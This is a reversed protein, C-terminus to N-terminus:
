VKAAVKLYKDKFLKTFHFVLEVEYDRSDHYENDYSCFIKSPIEKLAPYEELFSVTKVCYVQYSPELIGVKDSLMLIALALGEDISLRKALLIPVIDPNSKKESLWFLYNELKSLLISLKPYQHEIIELESLRM